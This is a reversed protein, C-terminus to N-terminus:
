SYRYRVTYSCPILSVTIASYWIVPGTFGYQITITHLGLGAILEDDDEGNEELGKDGNVYVFEDDEIDVEENSEERVNVFHM